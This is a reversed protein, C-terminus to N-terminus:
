AGRRSVEQEIILEKLESDKDPLTEAPLSFKLYHIRKSKAIDLSEYFTKITLEDHVHGAAYVDDIDELM